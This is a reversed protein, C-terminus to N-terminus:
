SPVWTPAFVYILILLLLTGAIVIAVRSFLMATKLDKTLKDIRDYLLDIENFGVKQKAPDVGSNKAEEAKILDIPNQSQTGIFPAFVRKRLTKKYATMIRRQDEGKSMDLGVKDKKELEKKTDEQNIKEKKQEESM